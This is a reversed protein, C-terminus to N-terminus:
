EVINFSGSTFLQKRIYVRLSTLLIPSSIMLFFSRNTQNVPSNTRSCQIRLCYIRLRLIKVTDEFM